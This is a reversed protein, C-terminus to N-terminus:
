LTEMALSQYVIVLVLENFPWLSRGPTCDIPRMNWYFRRNLIRIVIDIALKGNQEAEFGFKNIEVLCITM